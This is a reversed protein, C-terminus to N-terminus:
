DRYPAFDDWIKKQIKEPVDYEEMKSTDSEKVVRLVVKASPDFASIPYMYQGAFAVDQGYAFWGQFDMVSPVRAMTVPEVLKGGNWLEMRYFDDRYRYKAPGGILARQWTSGSTEKPVPQVVVFVVAANEGVYQEWLKKQSLTLSGKVGDKGRKSERVRKGQSIARNQAQSMSEMIPPTVIYTHFNHPAKIEYPKLDQQAAVQLAQVPFPKEPIDPLMDAPPLPTRELKDKAEAILESAIGIPIIGAIGPGGNEPVDGFTTIGVVEGAMNLLPGGSNGHNINVDSIIAGSEVKSVIGSTIVKDQHLPSGIAIVKEGEVALPEGVKRQALTLVSSEKFVSTDAAIAAVDHVKDQCLLVGRIKQGRVFRIRVSFAGDVVHSNTLILFPAIVFGSGTARDTEVTVVGGKLSRYLQGADDVQRAPTASAVEADNSTIQLDTVEGDRIELHRTWTISKGLYSVSKPTTLTYSGPELTLAASGKLDTTLTLSKGSDARTVLFQTAPVPKVSLDEAIVVAALKLTGTAWSSGLPVMLFLLCCMARCIEKRM